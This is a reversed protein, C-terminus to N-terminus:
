KAGTQKGIATFSQATDSENQRYNENMAKVNDATEACARVAADVCGTHGVIWDNLAGSWTSGIVGFAQVDFPQRVSNVAGTIQEMVQRIDQEHKDLSAHDVSFGTM